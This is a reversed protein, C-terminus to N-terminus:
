KSAKLISCQKPNSCCGTKSAYNCKIRGITYNPTLDDM